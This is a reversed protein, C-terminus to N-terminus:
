ASSPMRSGLLDRPSPSTYLLCRNFQTYDQDYDLIPAQVGFRLPDIVESSVDLDTRRASAGFSILHSVGLPLNGDFSLDYQTQQWEYGLHGMYIDSHDVFGTLSWELDADTIGELKAILHGSDNSM